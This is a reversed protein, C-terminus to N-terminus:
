SPPIACQFPQRMRRDFGKPRKGTFRVTLRRFQPVDGCQRVRSLTVSIPYSKFTGAVCSPDCTNIRATGTGRASKTGYRSWDVKKVTFNADACTVVFSKPKYVNNQCDKPFFVHLKDSGSGASAVSAPLAIALIAGLALSIRLM